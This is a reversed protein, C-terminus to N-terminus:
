YCIGVPLLFSVSATVTRSSTTHKMGGMEVSAVYMHGYEGFVKVLESTRKKPDQIDLARNVADKLAATPQVVDGLTVQCKNYLYRGTVYISSSSSSGTNAFDASAELSGSVFPSEASIALKAWGSKAYSTARASYTIMVDESGLEADIWTVNHIDIGEIM